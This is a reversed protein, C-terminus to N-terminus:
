RRICYLPLVHYDFFVRPNLDGSFFRFSYFIVVSEDIHAYKLPLGWTIGTIRLALGALIASALAIVPWKIQKM